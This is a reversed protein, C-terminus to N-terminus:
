RLRHRLAGAMVVLAGAAFVSGGPEPVPSPAVITAAALFPLGLQGEGFSVFDISDLTDAVFGAPLSIMQMDLRDPGFSATGAVNPATNCYSGDFHDRVNAGETLTYVYIESSGVFDVAGIGAGCSGYISNVLLYASTAGFIGVPLSFDQAGTSQVVATDLNTGITALLFPITGVTLSGGHQPYNSGGSYTTLDSNVFGSLDVPITDARAAGALCLPIVPILLLLKPPGNRM